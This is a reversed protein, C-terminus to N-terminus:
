RYNRRYRNAAFDCPSILRAATAAKQCGYAMREKRYGPRENDLLFAPIFPPRSFLLSADERKRRDRYGPAYARITQLRISWRPVGVISLSRVIM